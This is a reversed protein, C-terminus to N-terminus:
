PCRRMAKVLIVLGLLCVLFVPLEDLKKTKFHKQFTKQFVSQPDPAQERMQDVFATFAEAFATAPIATQSKAKPKIKTAM